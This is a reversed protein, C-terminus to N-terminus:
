LLGGFFAMRCPNSYGNTGCARITERWGASARRSEEHQQEVITGSAYTAGLGTLALSLMASGLSIDPSISRAGHRITCLCAPVCRPPGAHRTSIKRSLVPM